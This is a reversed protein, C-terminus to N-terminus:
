YRMPESRRGDKTATGVRSPKKFRNGGKEFDKQTDALVGVPQENKNIREMDDVADQHLRQTNKLRKILEQEKGELNEIQYMLNDRMSEENNVAEEYRYRAEHSIQEQHIKRKQEVEREFCRIQNVNQINSLQEEKKSIKYVERLRQLNDKVQQAKYMSTANSEEQARSLGVTLDERMIEANQKKNDLSMQKEVEWDSKLNDHERNRKKIVMVNLAKRKTEDIKQLVKKKKM